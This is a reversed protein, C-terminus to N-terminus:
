DGARAAAPARVVLHAIRARIEAEATNGSANELMREYVLNLDNWAERAEYIRALASHRRTRGTSGDFIVRYVRLAKWHRRTPGRLGRGAACSARGSRASQHALRASRRAAKLRMELIQALEKWSEVSSYIRDLNTLAELDLPDIGLVYQYTEEAKNVDGLEDEFTKALRRGIPGQVAKDSQAGLIDAYANALTEWGSDVSAALRPAEENTKEDLPFEKM